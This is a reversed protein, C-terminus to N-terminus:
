QNEKKVVRVAGISDNHASAMLLGFYDDADLKNLKCIIQKNIGEPMMNIFFPFLHKSHFQQRTKPLTLSVAAKSSDRFWRDHYRFAFTGDDNQILVGAEEDKFFVTAQRM